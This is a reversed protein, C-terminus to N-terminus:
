VLPLVLVLLLFALATAILIRRVLPSETRGTRAGRQAGHLRSQVGGM